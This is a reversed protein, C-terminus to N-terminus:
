LYYYKSGQTCYGDSIIRGRTLRLYCMIRMISLNHHVDHSGFSIRKAVAFDSNSILNFSPFYVALLSPRCFVHDQMLHLSVVDRSLFPSWQYYRRHVGSLAAISNSMADGLEGHSSCFHWLIRNMAHQLRNPLHLEEYACRESFGTFWHAPFVFHFLTSALPVAGSGWHPLLDAGRTGWIIQIPRSMPMGHPPRRRRRLHQLKPM